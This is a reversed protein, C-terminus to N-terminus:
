LGHSQLHALIESVLPEDRLESWPRNSSVRVFFQEGATRFGYAWSLKLLALASRPDNQAISRGDYLHWFWVNQIVGSNNFTRYEPPPVARGGVLFPSDAPQVPQPVWGGGPWCADPTHTAVASVPVAGPPWYALYVTIQLPSDGHTSSRRRVYTRQVLHETKLISSFQYLNDTHVIDWGAPSAPIIKELDPVPSSERSPGHTNLVFFGLMLTAVAYAALLGWPNAAPTTTASPPPTDTTKAPAELWLALTGLILATVGLVAFGTYDHWKGGIDVGANALLTLILSRIINMGFALPPAIAILLVRAWPRRVLTASFFVAAVVCSLLSRVGSCAEEIGVSTRALLIINGSTSASIGLLHLSGLVIDTVWLQLQLTLRSYTGPPIPACLPWLGVAVFTTWNLPLARVRDSSFWLLAAALLATLALALSLSVLSHTWDIAAAYLGSIGVFVLGTVLAGARLLRLGGTEAPHRWPSHRRSEHLLLVFLVPAFLGHSLDPNNLWEPWLHVCFAATLLGALCVVVWSTASLPPTAPVASM